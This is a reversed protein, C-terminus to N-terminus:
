LRDNTLSSRADWEELAAQLHHATERSVGRARAMYRLYEEAGQLLASHPYSTVAAVLTHAIGLHSWSDMCSPAEPNSVPIHGDVYRGGSGECRWYWANGTACQCALTGVTDPHRRLWEADLPYVSARQAFRRGCLCCTLAIKPRPM